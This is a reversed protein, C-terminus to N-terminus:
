GKRFLADFASRAREPSSPFGGQGPGGLAPGPIEFFECFNAKDKEPCWEAQPERCQNSAGPDFFRCNRCVKLDSYCHPCGDTRQLASLLPVERHCHHCNVADRRM